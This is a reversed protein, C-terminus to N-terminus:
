ARTDLAVRHGVVVEPAAPRRWRCLSIIGTRLSTLAM